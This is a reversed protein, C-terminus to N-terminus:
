EKGFYISRYCLINKRSFFIIFMILSVVIEKSFKIVRILRKIKKENFRLIEGFDCIYSEFYICYKFGYFGCDM